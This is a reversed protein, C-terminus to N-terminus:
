RLGRTRKNQKGFREQKVRVATSIIAQKSPLNIHLHSNNPKSFDLYTNQDIDAWDRINTGFALQEESPSRAKAWAAGTKHFESGNVILVLLLRAM